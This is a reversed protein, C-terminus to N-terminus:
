WRTEEHMVDALADMAEILQGDCLYPAPGLRLTPGRSDTRVGRARLARLTTDGRRKALREGRDDRCLAHHHWVPEPLGLLAQLARHIHTAELLDAGRTVESVGQAADDVVVALHYSTAFDKRAIVM